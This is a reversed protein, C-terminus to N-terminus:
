RRRPTSGERMWVLAIAGLLAALGLFGAALPTSAVGVVVSAGTRKIGLYDAGGYSAGPHMAIVAPLIVGDGAGDAIRRVTGGTAEALPRLPETTSVVDRFELTEFLFPALNELGFFGEVIVKVTQAVGLVAFFEIAEHVLAAVAM